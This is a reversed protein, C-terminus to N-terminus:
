PTTGLQTMWWPVASFLSTMAIIRCPIPVSGSPQTCTISLFVNCPWQPRQIQGPRARRHQIPEFKVPVTAEPELPSKESLLNTLPRWPIRNLRQFEPQMKDGRGDLDPRGGARLRYQSREVHFPAAGSAQSPKLRTFSRCGGCRQRIGAQFLQVPAPIGKDGLPNM